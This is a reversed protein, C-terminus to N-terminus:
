EGTEDDILHGNQPIIFVPNIKNGSDDHVRIHLHPGTSNGTNGSYGVLEGQIIREGTGVTISDMHMFTVEWGSDTRVTVMNGASSSYGAATVTGTVSSYLSTGVPVAIDVGDHFLREGTIPHIREGFNSSIKKSWDIGDFVPGYVQQGGGSLMYAEYQELAEGDLREEAIDELETKDVVVDCITVTKTYPNNHADYLTRDEKRFSWHLRYMLEIIEDLEPSVMDLDFEYFKASLYAMLTVSSFSFDPLTYTFEDVHEGTEAYYEDDILKELEDRKTTVKEEVNTELKRLYETADSLTHYDNQSITRTGIQAAMGFFMLLLLVTIWIAAFAVLVLSAISTILATRRKRIIREEKKSIKKLKHQQRMIGSNIEFNAQAIMRRAQQRRRQRLRTQRRRNEDTMTKTDAPNNKSVNLKLKENAERTVGLVMSHDHKLREGSQNLLRDRRDNLQLRKYTSGKDTISRIDKKV